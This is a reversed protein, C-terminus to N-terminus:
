SAVHQEVANPVSSKVQCRRVCWTGMRRTRCITVCSERRVPRVAGITVRWLWTCYDRFDEWEVFPLGVSRPPFPSPLSPPFACGSTGPASANYERYRPAFFAPAVPVGALASRMGGLRSPQRALGGMCMGLHLRELSCGGGSGSVYTLASYQMRQHEPHPVWCGSDFDYLVGILLETRTPLVRNKARGLWWGRRSVFRRWWKPTDSPTLQITSRMGRSGRHRRPDLPRTGRPLRPLSISRTTELVGGLQESVELYHRVIGVIRYPSARTRYPGRLLV